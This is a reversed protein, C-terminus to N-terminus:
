RCCCETFDAEICTDCRTENIDDIINHIKRTKYNVYRGVGIFEYYEPDGGDVCVEDIGASSLSLPMVHFGTDNLVSWMFFTNLVYKFNRISDLECFEDDTMNKHHYHTLDYKYDLIPHSLAMFYEIAKDQADGRCGLRSVYEEMTLLPYTYLTGCFCVSLDGTGDIDERFAREKIGCGVFADLFTVVYYTFATKFEKLEQEQCRLAADKLIRQVADEYVVLGRHNAEIDEYPVNGDGLRGDTCGGAQITSNAM